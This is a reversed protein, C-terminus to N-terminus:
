QMYWGGPMFIAMAEERLPARIALSHTNGKQDQYTLRKPILVSCLYTKEYGEENAIYAASLWLASKGPPLSPLQKTTNQSRKLRSTLEDQPFSEYIFTTAPDNYKGPAADDGHWFAEIGPTQLALAEVTLRVPNESM